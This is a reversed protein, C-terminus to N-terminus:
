TFISTILMNICKLKIWKRHMQSVQSVFLHEVNKGLMISHKTIENTKFVHNKIAVYRMILM